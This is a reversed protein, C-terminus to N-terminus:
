ISSGIIERLIVLVILHGPYFARWLLKPVRMAMVRGVQHRMSFLLTPLLSWVQIVSTNMTLVFLLNLGLHGAVMYIGSIYRYILMLILAYIGYDCPVILLFLVGSMFLITRQAISYRENSLAYLTLVCVLFTGVVSVAWTNFLLSFPAQSLGAIIALRTVYRKRNSTLEMGQVVYYAYIPFAMRGIIRFLQQEEFWTAGVHDILMTVMAVWQMRCM